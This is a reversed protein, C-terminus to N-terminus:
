GLQQRDTTCLPCKKLNISKGRQQREGENFLNTKSERSSDKDGGESGERRSWEM